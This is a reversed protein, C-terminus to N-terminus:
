RDRVRPRLRRLEPACDPHDFREPGPKRGQEAQPRTATFLLYPSFMLIARHQKSSTLVVERLSELPFAGSLLRALYRARTCIASASGGASVSPLAQDSLPRM